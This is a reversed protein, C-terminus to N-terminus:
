REETGATHQQRFRWPMQFSSGWIGRYTARADKELQTYGAILRDDAGPLTVAHGAKLMEAALDPSEGTACRAVRVADRNRITTCAVWKNLTATVLWATAVIGCPWTQRGLTATQTPDCADVGYLRYVQRSEVDAFSTGSLVEVRMPVAAASTRPAYSEPNADGPAAPPSQAGIPTNLVVLVSIVVTRIM